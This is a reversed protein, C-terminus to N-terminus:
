GYLQLLSELSIYDIYEIIKILKQDKFITINHYDYKIKISNYTVSIANIDTDTDTDIEIEDYEIEYSDIEKNISEFIDSMQFGKFYTYGCVNHAPTYDISLAKHFKPPDNPPDSGWFLDGRKIIEDSQMVRYGDPITYDTM